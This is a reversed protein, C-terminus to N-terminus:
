NWRELIKKIVLYSQPLTDCCAKVESGNLYICTGKITVETVHPYLEILDQTIAENM